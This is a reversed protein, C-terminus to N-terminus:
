RDARRWQLERLRQLRLPAFRDLGHDFPTSYGGPMRVDAGWKERHYAVNAPYTRGNDGRHQRLCASSAHITDGKIFGRPVGALDCRREYDADDVYAPTYNADMFGVREVTDATLKQVSWDNIGTWGYEDHDILRQLDGPALVVDDNMVIWYDESPYCALGLNVAAAYGINHPLDILWADDPLWGYDHGGNAIVCLRVDIDISQVADWLHSRGLTPIIVVPKV